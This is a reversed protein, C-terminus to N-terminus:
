FHFTEAVYLVEQKSSERVSSNGWALCDWLLVYHHDCSFNHKNEDLYVLSESMIKRKWWHTLAGEGWQDAQKRHYLDQVQKHQM